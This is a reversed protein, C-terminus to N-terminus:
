LSHPPKRKQGRFVPGVSWNPVDAPRNQAVNVIRVRPKVVGTQAALLEWHVLSAPDAWGARQGDTLVIVERRAQTSDGLLRLAATVAAPGDGRDRPGKITQM